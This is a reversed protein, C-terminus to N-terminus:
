ETPYITGDLADITIKEGTDNDRVTFVSAISEPDLLMARALEAAEQPSRAYIRNNWTIFYERLEAPEKPWLFSELSEMTKGGGQMITCGHQDWRNYVWTGSPHITLLGDINLHSLSPQNLRVKIRTGDSYFYLSKRTLFDLLQDM